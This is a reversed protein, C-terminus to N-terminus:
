FLSLMGSILVKVLNRFYDKGFNNDIATYMNSDNYVYFRDFKLKGHKRHRQTSM